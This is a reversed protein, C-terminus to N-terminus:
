GALSPFSMQCPYSNDRPRWAHRTMITGGNNALYLLSSGLMMSGYVTQRQIISGRKKKGKKKVPQKSVFHFSCSRSLAYLRRCCTRSDRGQLRHMRRLPPPKQSEPVAVLSFVLSFWGGVCLVFVCVCFSTFSVSRIDPVM